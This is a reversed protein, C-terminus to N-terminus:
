LAKPVSARRAPEVGICGGPGGKPHSRYALYLGGVGAGALLAPVLFVVTDITRAVSRRGLPAIELGAPGAVSM